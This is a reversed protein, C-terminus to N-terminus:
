KKPQSSFHTPQSYFYERWTSLLLLSKQFFLIAGKVLGQMLGKVQGSFEVFGKKKKKKQKERLRKRKMLVMTLFYRHINFFFIRTSAIKEEGKYFSFSGQHSSSM